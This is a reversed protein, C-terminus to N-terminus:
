DLLGAERLKVRIPPWLVIDGSLGDDTHDVARDDELDQGRSYLVCENDELWIRGHPTDVSTRRDILRYKFPLFERDFPDHDSRKRAFQAYVKVLSDPYTGYTQWYGLVGGAMSTGAVSAMLVNRATFLEEIDQMSYVVAAFRVPNTRGFQPEIELIPDYEEVRWRRWWDDYVLTLRGISAEQSDHVEAIKAWRRAAGFRTLPADQSQIAAFSSAFMEPDAQGGADFVQNILAESVIRDGEGMFLRGYDPRLFPLKHKAIEATQDVAITERYSYMMDRLVSLLDTLMRISHLQEVMFERDCCQRAVFITAIVMNLGDEAQGAEMLRYAEVVGFAVITDVAQLYPFRNDRLSGGVAIDAVLGAERFRAEVREAGYPLGFLIKDESDLIAQAMAANSEAWGAVREWDDMGPHITTHNFLEGVPMPPDTLELYAALLGPYSKIDQSGKVSRGYEYAQGLPSPVDGNLKQLVGEVPEAAGAAAALALVAISSLLALIKSRM